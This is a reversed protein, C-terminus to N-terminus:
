QSKGEERTNVKGRVCVRVSESSARKGEGRSRGQVGKAPVARVSQLM